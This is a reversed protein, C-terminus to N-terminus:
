SAKRLEVDSCVFGKALIVARRNEYLRQAVEPTRCNDDDHTNWSLRQASESWCIHIQRILFRHKVDMGLDVLRLEFYEQEEPPGCLDDTKLLIEVM